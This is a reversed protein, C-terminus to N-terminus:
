VRDSASLPLVRLTRTENVSSAPKASDKVLALIVISARSGSSRGWLSCAVTAVPVIVSVQCSGSVWRVM